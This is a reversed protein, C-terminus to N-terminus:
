RNFASPSYMSWPGHDMAGQLRSSNIYLPYHQYITTDPGADAVPPQNGNVCWQCDLEKQCSVFGALIVLFSTLFLLFLKM